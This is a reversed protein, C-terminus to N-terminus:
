CRRVCVRAFPDSSCSPLFATGTSSYAGRALPDRFCLTEAPDALALDPVRTMEAACPSSIEAIKRRFVFVAIASLLATPGTPEPVIPTGVQPVVGIGAGQAVSQGFHERWVTYDDDTVISPTTDNFPLTGSTALADRWVTYDGADVFGDGNYDGPLLAPPLTLLDFNDEAWEVAVDRATNTIGPTRHVFLFPDSTEFGVSRAQWAIMYVGEPPATATSDDTDNVQMVLHKHIAGTDVGDFPDIDTSTEAILGGPVLEDTGTAAIWESNADLVEWVLGSPRAFHVDSVDYGDGGPDSGDWYFLNSVTTGITMPLLDFSVDHESPFGEWGPPLNSNGTAFAVFGPNASRFVSVSPIFLFQQPYVGTGAMWENTVDDVVATVIKGNETQLLVDNVAWATQCAVLVVLACSAAAVWLRRIFFCNRNFNM